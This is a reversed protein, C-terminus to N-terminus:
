SHDPSAVHRKMKFIISPELESSYVFGATHKRDGYRAVLEELPGSELARMPCGSVCVPKKDKKLRDLCYNCMEMKANPEPRFQPIQCPCAKQCLDCQVRELCKERNVM